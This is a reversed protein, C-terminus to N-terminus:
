RASDDPVHLTLLHGVGPGAQEWSDVDLALVALTSPRYSPVREGSTLEIVLDHMGPNHGVLLATAVDDDLLRVQELLEDVGAGYLGGTISVAAAPGLELAELTQRARLASSCLVREPDLGRVTPGLGAAARRGAPTLARDADDGGPPPDATEGHRLVLLRRAV